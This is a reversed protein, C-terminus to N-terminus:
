DEMETVLSAHVQRENTKTFTGPTDNGGEVVESPHIVKFAACPPSMVEGVRTYKKDVNEAFSYGIGIQMNSFICRNNTWRRENKRRSSHKWPQSRCQGWQQLGSNNKPYKITFHPDKPLLGVDSLNFQRPSCSGERCVRWVTFAM